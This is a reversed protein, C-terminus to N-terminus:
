PKELNADSKWDEELSDLYEVIDPIRNLEEGIWFYIWHPRKIMGDAEKMYWKSIPNTRRARWFIRPYIEKMRDWIERGVGEGRAIEDVAFKSLLIGLNNKKFLACAKYESELLVKDFGDSLYGPLSKRQFSNEILQILKDRNIENWDSCVLIKSGRKILTGSGKVTFLEKLLSSASTLSITLRRNKNQSLLSRLLSLLKQDKNDLINSNQLSDFDKSLNIISIRSHNSYRLGAQESLLILKNSGLEELIEPITTTLFNKEETKALVVPIKKKEKISQVVRDKLNTPNRILQFPFYNNEEDRLGTKLFTRMYGPLTSDLVLVPYLSLQQLIRLDHILVDWSNLISESNPFILAFKEPPQSKFFQYYKWVDNSNETLELIKNLIHGTDM